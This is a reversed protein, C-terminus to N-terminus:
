SNRVIHPFALPLAQKIKSKSPFPKNNTRTPLPTVKGEALGFVVENAHEAPWVLSTVSSSQSFKNIIAKRDTWETGLKYIFVINDSQAIALKQSDPSFQM